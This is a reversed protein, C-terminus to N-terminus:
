DMENLDGELFSQISAAERQLKQFEFEVDVRNSNDPHYEWLSQLQNEIAILDNLLDVEKQTMM